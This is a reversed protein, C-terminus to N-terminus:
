RNAGPQWESSSSPHERWVTCAPLMLAAALMVGIYTRM